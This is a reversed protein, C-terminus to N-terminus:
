RPAPVFMVVRGGEQDNGAIVLAARGDGALDVVIPSGLGSEASGGSIGEPGVGLWNRGHRAAGEPLPLVVAPEKEVPLGGRSAPVGRHVRLAGKGSVVLDPARDGDVDEGFLLFSRDAEPIEISRVRASKPWIGDDGRSWVEFAVESSKLGKWYALVLDDRGDGDADFARATVAQWLNAGTTGSVFPPIGTKTRDTELRYVRLRKEGFFSLKEASMTAAVFAEEGDLVVHGADVLREPEPLRAWCSRAREASPAEPELRTLEVRLEGVPRADSVLVDGGYRSPGVVSFRDSRVRLRRGWSLVDKPVESEIWGASGDDIGPRWTLWTGLLPVHLRRPPAPGAPLGLLSPFSVGARALMTEPGVGFGSGDGASFADLAGDRGVILDDKGDADRDFALLRSSTRDLGERIPLWRAEADTTLRVLRPASAGASSPSESDHVECDTRVSPGSAVPDGALVIVSRTGDEGRPFAIGLISGGPRADLRIYGGIEDRTVSPEALTSPLSSAVLVFAIARRM